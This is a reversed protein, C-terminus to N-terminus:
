SPTEGDGLSPDLHNVLRETVLDTIETLCASVLGTLDGAVGTLIESPRDVAPHVREPVRQFDDSGGYILQATVDSLAAQIRADILAVLATM